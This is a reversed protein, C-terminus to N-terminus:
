FVGQPGDGWGLGGWGLLGAPSVSNRTGLEGIETRNKVNTRAPGPGETEWSLSQGWVRDGGHRLGLLRGTLM